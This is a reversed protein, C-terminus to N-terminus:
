QYCNRFEPENRKVLTPLMLSSVPLFCIWIRPITQLTNPIGNLLKEIAKDLQKIQAKISRISEILATQFIDISNEACKSLRYSFRVAKQICKAVREPDPFRNKGKENLYNVLVAIDVSSIEDISYKELLLEIM